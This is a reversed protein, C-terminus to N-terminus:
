RVALRTGNVMRAGAIERGAAIADRIAAKDIHVITEYSKFQAPLKAEDDIVVAPPNKAVSLVFWPSAVRKMGLTEMGSKVAERLGRARGELIKRRRAMRDEAAKIAKAEEEMQQAFAAVAIAKQEFEGELAELTGAVVEAPLDAEPDTFIELAELYSREIDYLKM